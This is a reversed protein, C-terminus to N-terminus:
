FFFFENETVKEELQDPEKENIEKTSESGTELLLIIHGEAIKDGVKIKIEKVTGSASSPIEMTAKDSELTVLPDEQNITDGVNVLIEIVDIEDFDGIDPLTIEQLEAM